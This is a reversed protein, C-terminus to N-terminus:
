AEVEWVKINLFSGASYKRTVDFKVQDPTYKAMVGEAVTKGTQDKAVFKFNKM